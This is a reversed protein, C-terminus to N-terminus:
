LMATPNIIADTCVIQEFFHIGRKLFLAFLYFIHQTHVKYVYLCCNQQGASELARERASVITM